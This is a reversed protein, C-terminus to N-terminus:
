ANGLGELLDGLRAWAGTRDELADGFGELLGRWADRCGGLAGRAGLFTGWPMGLAQWLPELNFKGVGARKEVVNREPSSVKGHQSAKERQNTRCSPKGASARSGM